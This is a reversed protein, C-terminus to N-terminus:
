RDEKADSHTVYSKILVFLSAAIAPFLLFSLIEEFTWDLSIFTAGLWAGLVAGFRGIGLMWAVGTARSQTPYFRASLSPMASQAGNACLGALLVLIAFVTLNDINQGLTFTFIGAMLYFFAIIRNPNYRDMMWGIFVSSLVGGFQYLGGIFAAQEISAGSAKMLTPLWSTLLYIIMLGMFYTAWLLLTGMRYPMSFIRIVQRSLKDQPESSVTLNALYQLQHPVILSLIHNIKKQQKGQIVLYRLSEPLWILVVMALVIPLVGGLLFFARWGFHPILGSGIFGSMAMGLNFGCFMTTVVFSRLHKPVYESLLTTVNPMAAGLGMGTLLRLLVLQDLNRALASWLSFLGFILMAMVIVIKRGFRDALPGAILAGIIMGGLAASMVPGLDVKNIGWEQILAPAIFGMAATDLGDLFIILFCLLGIFIQYRSMPAHDILHQVSVSSQKIEDAQTSNATKM